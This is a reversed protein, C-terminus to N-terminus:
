CSHVRMYTIIVARPMGELQPGSNAKNAAVHCVLRYRVANIFMCTETLQALCVELRGMPPILMSIKTQLSLKVASAVLNEGALLSRWIQGRQKIVKTSPGMDPLYAALNEVLAALLNDFM